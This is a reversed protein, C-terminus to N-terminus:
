VHIVPIKGDRRNYNYDFKVWQDADFPSVAQSAVMQRLVSRAVEKQLSMEPALSVLSQYANAVEDPDHESLIPDNAYLDTLIDSRRVKDIHESVEKRKKGEDHYLAEYIDRETGLGADALFDTLGKPSPPTLSDVMYSAIGGVADAPGKNGNGGGGNGGGGGGGNGGGGGGHRQAAKTLEGQLWSRRRSVAEAQKRIRASEGYGEVIGRLRDLDADVSSSDLVAARDLERAHGASAEKVSEPVKSDIDVAGGDIPTRLRSFVAYRHGTGDSSLSEAIKMTEDELVGDIMGAVSRCEEEVASFKSLYEGSAACLTDFSWGGNDSREVESASKEVEAYEPDGYRSVEDVNYQGYESVDYVPGASAKKESSMWSDDDGFLMSAVKEKSAIDFDATRDEAHKEYFSITKATNFKEVLRDAQDRNFGHESAAKVVATDADGSENYIRVATRLAEDLKDSFPM